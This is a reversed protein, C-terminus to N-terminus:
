ATVLQLQANSLALRWLQARQLWGLLNGAGASTSAGFRLINMTPVVTTAVVVPAAGNMAGLASPAPSWAVAMRASTFAPPFVGLVTAGATGALAGANGTTSRYLTTRNVSGGDDLQTLVQNALSNSGGVMGAAFVSVPTDAAVVFPMSATEVARTMATDATPIYSTAFLGAELQANTVSGAVTLTLSGATPTFTQSVRQASGTGVLAGTATGSKTITGTGYFSLTWAVSTVTASQTALTASNLLVNTRADEILLGRPALTVPDYDFRAANIAATQMVGASDFYTAVSARAFTISPDLAGSLFDLDIDAAPVALGDVCRGPLNSDPFTSVVCQAAAPVGLAAGLSTLSLGSLLDRRRM